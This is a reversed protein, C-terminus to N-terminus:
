KVLELQKALDANDPFLALGQQWAAIAKDKEGSDLYLNGLFLYSLAHDPDSPLTSQIETLTEFESIAENSKGLFKPWHSLSVAKTFRADWHGPDLALADDFAQNAKTAWFGALPGDGVDMIKQIYAWGLDVQADPNDPDLEAAREFAAIVDDLRGEKRLEQWLEEKELTGIEPDTLIAVIKRVDLEKEQADGNALVNEELWRAVIDELEGEIEVPGVPARSEVAGPAQLQANRLAEEITGQKEQLAALAKSNRELLAKLEADAGDGGAVSSSALVLNSVFAVILATVVSVAIVLPAKM